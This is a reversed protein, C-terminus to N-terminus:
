ILHDSEAEKSRLRRRIESWGRYIWWIAGLMASICTAVITIEPLIANVWALLSGTTTIPFFIDVCHKLHDSDIDNLVVQIGHDNLM